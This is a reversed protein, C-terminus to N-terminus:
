YRALVIQDYQGLNQVRAKGQYIDMPPPDLSARLEELLSVGQLDVPLTEQMQHLSKLIVM